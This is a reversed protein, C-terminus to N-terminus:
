LNSCVKLLSRLTAVDRETELFVRVTGSARIAMEQSVIEMLPSPNDEVTFLREEVSKKPDPFYRSTILPVSIFLAIFGNSYVHLLM